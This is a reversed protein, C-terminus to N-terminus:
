KKSSKGAGGDPANGGPGKAANPDSIGGKTVAAVSPDIAFPDTAKNARLTALNALTRKDELVIALVHEHSRDILRLHTLPDQWDATTRELGQSADPPRVRAPVGLMTNLKNVADQFTAGFPSDAKLPVEDYMKWLRDKIYFFYRTKGDKFLRQVGEENRYSYENHLATVDYGTPTEGFPTFSRAFNVKRNEKDAELDQMKPGPQLKGLLPAYERDFLGDPNNYADTVEQHSMGWHLGKQWFAGLSPVVPADPGAKPPAALGTIALMASAILVCAALIVRKM